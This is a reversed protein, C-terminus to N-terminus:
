AWNHWFYHRCIRGSGVARGYASARWLPTIGSAPDAKDVDVGPAALLLEVVDVHGKGAAIWLPTGGVWAHAMNVDAGAAILRKVEQPDGWGAAFCMQAGPAAYTNYLFGAAGVGLAIYVLTLWSGSTPRATSTSM